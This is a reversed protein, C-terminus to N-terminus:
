HGRNRKNRPDPPAPESVVPPHHIVTVSEEAEFWFEGHPGDLRGTILQILGDVTNIQTIAEWADTPHKSTGPGNYIIDGIRVDAAPVTIRTTM